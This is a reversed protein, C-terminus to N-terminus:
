VNVVQIRIIDSIRHIIPLNEYHHAFIVIEAYDKENKSNLTPDIVKLSCIYYTNKEYPYNADIIVGHFNFPQYSDALPM